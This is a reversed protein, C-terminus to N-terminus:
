RFDDGARSLFSSLFSYQCLPISVVFVHRAVNSRALIGGSHMFPCLFRRASTGVLNAPSPSVVFLVSPIRSVLWGTSYLLHFFFRFCFDQSIRGFLGRLGRGIIGCHRELEFIQFINAIASPVLHLYECCFEHLGSIM